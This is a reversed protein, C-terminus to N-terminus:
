AARRQQLWDAPVVGQVMENWGGLLWAALEDNTMDRFENGTKRQTRVLESWLDQGKVYHAFLKTVLEPPMEHLIAPDGTARRFFEDALLRAVRAQSAALEYVEQELDSPAGDAEASLAARDFAEARMKWRHKASWRSILSRSKALQEAVMTQTRRGVMERYAVFAEFAEESEDRQRKWM